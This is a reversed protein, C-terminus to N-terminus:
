RRRTSARAQAADLDAGERDRDASRGRLARDGTDQRRPASLPRRRGQAGGRAAAGAQARALDADAHAGADREDRLRVDHGPRRRRGRRRRRRRGRRHPRTPAQGRGARHGAVARRDRLDGRVHQCDFGYNADDYGIRGVTDRAIKPVDVYTNTSIEGSVVVLGTNVLTECAVRGLPDEAMVADLVATRSRTPSRTRTARPSRNPPSCSNTTPSREHPCGRAKRVRATVEVLYAVMVEQDGIAPPIRGVATRRAHDTRSGGHVARSRSSPSTWSGPRSAAGARAAAATRESASSRSSCSTAGRRRRGAGAAADRDAPRDPQPGLLRAPPPDVVQEFPDVPTQYLSAVIM